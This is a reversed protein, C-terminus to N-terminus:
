LSGIPARKLAAFYLQTESNKEYWTGSEGGERWVGSEAWYGDELEFLPEEDGERQVSLELDALFGARPKGRMAVDLVYRGKEELDIPGMEVAQDVELSVRKRHACQPRQMDLGNGFLCAMAFFLPIYHRTAIM